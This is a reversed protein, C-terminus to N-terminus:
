SRTWRRHLRDFDERPRAAEFAVFLDGQYILSGEDGNEVWAFIDEHVEYDRDIGDDCRFVLVNHIFLPQGTLPDIEQRGEKATVHCKVRTRTQRKSRVYPGWGRRVAYIVIYWMVILWIITLTFFIWKLM